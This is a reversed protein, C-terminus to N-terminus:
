IIYKWGIKLILFKKLYIKLKRIINLDIEEQINEIKTEKVENNKDINNKNIIFENEEKIKRM